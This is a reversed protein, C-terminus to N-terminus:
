WSTKLVLQSEVHLPTEVLVACQPVPSAECQGFLQSSTICGHLKQSLPPTAPQQGLDLDATGLRRAAMLAAIALSPCHNLCPLMVGAVIIDICSCLTMEQQWM